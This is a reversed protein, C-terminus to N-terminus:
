AGHDRWAQLIGLAVIVATEARLVRAGLDVGRVRPMGRLRERESPEFGGEPGILLAMPGGREAATLGSLVDVIPMSGGSEDCWLICAPTESSALFDELGMPDAVAPVSLRGCQEAAERAQASLRGVNVRSVVTRRTVVPQLRTAGLEAAKEVLLEMRVRKIPAMAVWVDAEVTQPRLRESLRVAGSRRELREIGARWEGDTGNFLIVSDGTGLRMVNAVYHVQDSTLNLSSGSALPGDVYLRVNSDKTM